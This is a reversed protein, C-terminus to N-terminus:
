FGRAKLWEIVENKEVAGAIVVNKGHQVAVKARAVKSSPAKFLSIRLEQALVHAQGDVGRIHVMYRTGNNRIDSYVPLNGNTNRPVFYRQGNNGPALVSTAPQQSVYTAASHSFLRSNLPARFPFTRTLLSAM